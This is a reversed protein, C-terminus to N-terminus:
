IKFRLYIGPKFFSTELFSDNHKKGTQSESMKVGDSDYQITLSTHRGKTQRLRLCSSLDLGVYMERFLAYEIVARIGIEYNHTWPYREQVEELRHKTEEDLKIRDLKVRNWGYGLYAYIITNLKKNLAYSSGLGLKLTHSFSPLRRRLTSTTAGYNASSSKSFRLNYAFYYIVEKYKSSLGLEADYLKSYQNDDNKFTRNEVNYITSTMSYDQSCVPLSHQLVLILLFLRIIM